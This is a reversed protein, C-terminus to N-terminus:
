EVHEIEKLAAKPPLLGAPALIDVVQQWLAGTDRIASGNRWTIRVDGLQMTDTPVVQVRPMLDPELREIDQAITGASVPDLRITIKPEQRLPMVVARVIARVEDGGYQASLAPFSTVFCDLLLHAIAEASQEAVRAAEVAANDLQAAIQALVRTAVATASREAESLATDHGDRWAIDRAADLEAATFVPEIVEPEPPPPPAPPHDFDEDFLSSSGPRTPTFLMNM